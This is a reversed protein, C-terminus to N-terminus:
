ISWRTYYRRWRCSDILLVSDRGLLDFAKVLTM